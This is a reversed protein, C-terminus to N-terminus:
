LTRLATNIANLYTKRIRIKYPQKDLHMRKLLWINEPQDRSNLVLTSLSIAIRIYVYTYIDHSRTAPEFNQMKPM